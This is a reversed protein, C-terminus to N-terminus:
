SSLNQIMDRIKHSVVFADDLMDQRCGCVTSDFVIPSSFETMLFEFYSLEVSSIKLVQLLFVGVSSPPSRGKFNTFDWGIEDFFNRLDHRIPCEDTTIEYLVHALTHGQYVCNHHDRIIKDFLRLVAAPRQHNTLVDLVEHVYYLGTVYRRHRHRHEVLSDHVVEHYKMADAYAILNHYEGSVMGGISHMVRFLIDAWDCMSLVRAAHRNITNVIDYAAGYKMMQKCPSTERAKMTQNLTTIDLVDCETHGDYLSYPSLAASFGYMRVSNWYHDIDEENADLVMSTYIMKEHPNLFEFAHCWLDCFPMLKKMIYNAKSIEGCATSDIESLMSEGGIASKGHHFMERIRFGPHQTLSYVQFGKVPANVCIPMGYNANCISRHFTINLDMWCLSRCGQDCCIPRTRLIKGPQCHKHHCVYELGFHDQLTSSERRYYEPTSENVHVFPSFTCHNYFSRWHEFDDVLGAGLCAKYDVLSFMVRSSHVCAYNPVAVCHRGDVERQFMMVQDWYSDDVDDPIAFSQKKEDDRQAMAVAFARRLHDNIGADMYLEHLNVDDDDSSELCMLEMNLQNYEM